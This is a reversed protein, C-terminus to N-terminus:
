TLQPILLFKVKFPPVSILKKLYYFLAFRHITDLDLPM